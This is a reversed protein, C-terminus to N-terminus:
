VIKAVIGKAKTNPPKAMHGNSGPVPLFIRATAKAPHMPTDSALLKKLGRYARSSMREAALKMLDSFGGGCFTMMQASKM